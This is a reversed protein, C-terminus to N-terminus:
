SEKDTFTFDQRKIESGGRLLIIERVGSIDSYATFSVPIKEGAELTAEYLIRYYAFGDYTEQMVALVKAGGSPVDVNFAIDAEYDYHPVGSVTLTVATEPLVQTGPLPDQLYVTGDEVIDSPVYRVFINNFSDLRLQGLILNLPEDMAYPMEFTTESSASIVVDITQGNTVETEATVSQECVYGIEIESIRYSVSGLTLGSEELARTAEDLTMGILNPVTPAAPGLSVICYITTGHRAKVGAEPSQLIVNGSAVTDNNEYDQIEFSFGFNEAKNRAEDVTRDVLTPVLDYSEDDSVYTGRLIIFIGIIVMVLAAVTLGIRLSGHTHRRYSKKQPPTKATSSFRAFEGNPDKLSRRLHASMENATQYRRNLDKNLARLVVDNLAPPIKPNIQIPPAPIDSIHKLAIAVSTEGEFPVHGTLMEYLMVGTSYLDSGETVPVGKAQEPSLYHVSGLVTSGTFTVTSADVERAIGFDMLKVKGNHMVIVNQPKVDRHIIGATHAANLADLVQVTLAVAIRPPMPGNKDLIEKLTQGEIYELVIYPLGDTEGVDYARVINDHSLHLVARAEREFRRLFESDNKYEDKLIKVAYTRRNSLSVVRYVHAMGGSGILEVIRYRHGIITGPAIM